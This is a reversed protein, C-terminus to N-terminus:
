EVPFCACDPSLHVLVSFLSTSRADLLSALAMGSFEAFDDRAERTTVDRHDDTISNVVYGGGEKRGNM